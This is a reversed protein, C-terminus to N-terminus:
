RSTHLATDSTYSESRGIIGWTFDTAPGLLGRESIGWQFGDPPLRVRLVGDGSEWGSSFLLDRDLGDSLSAGEPRQAQVHHYTPHSRM